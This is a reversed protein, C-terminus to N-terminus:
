RPTGPLLPNFKRSPQATCNAQMMAATAEACAVGAQDDAKVMVLSLQGAMVPVQLNEERCRRKEEKM